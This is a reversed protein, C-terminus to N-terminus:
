GFLFLKCFIYTKILMGILGAEHRDTSDTNHICFYVLPLEPLLGSFWELTSVIILIGISSAPLLQLAFARVFDIVTVRTVYCLM